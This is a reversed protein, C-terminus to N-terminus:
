IIDGMLKKNLTLIENEFQVKDNEMVQIKQTLETNVKKTHDLETYLGVVVCLISIGFAVSLIRRIRRCLM